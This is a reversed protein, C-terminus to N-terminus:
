SKFNRQSPFFTEKKTTSLKHPAVTVRNSRRSQLVGHEICGNAFWNGGDCLSLQTNQAKNPPRLEYAM